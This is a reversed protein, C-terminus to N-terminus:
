RDDCARHFLVFSGCDQCTLNTVIDFEEHYEEEHDGGWILQGGCYYCSTESSKSVVVNWYKNQVNPVNSM